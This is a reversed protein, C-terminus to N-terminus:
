SIDEYNNVIYYMNTNKQLCINYCTLEFRSIAMGNVKLPYRPPLQLSRNAQGAACGPAHRLM